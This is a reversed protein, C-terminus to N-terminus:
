KKLNIQIQERNNIKESAKKRRNLNKTRRKEDNEMRKACFRNISSFLIKNNYQLKGAFIIWNGFSLWPVSLFWAIEVNIWLYWHTLDGLTVYYICICYIASCIYFPYHLSDVLDLLNYRLLDPYYCSSFSHYLPLSLIDLAVSVLNWLIYYSLHWFIRM